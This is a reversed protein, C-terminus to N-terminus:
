QKVVKITNSNNGQRVLILYTGAKLDKGFSTTQNSNANLNSLLRGNIDFVTLVVKEDSTSQVELNFSNTSPNPWVKSAFPLNEIPNGSISSKHNTAPKTTVSIEKGKDHPVTVTVIQDFWNYSEDYGQVNFSYIRGKGKGSREARLLLNQGFMDIQWDNAV